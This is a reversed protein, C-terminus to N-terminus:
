MQTRFCSLMRSPSQDHGAHPAIALGVSEILDQPASASAGTGAHAGFYKPTGRYYLLTTGNPLVVPAPNTVIFDWADAAGRALLPGAPASWPGAATPASSVLINSELHRSDSRASSCNGPASPQMAGGILDDAPALLM